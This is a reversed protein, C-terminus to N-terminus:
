IITLFFSHIHNIVMSMINKMASNYLLTSLVAEKEDLDLKSYILEKEDATYVKIPDEETGKALTKAKKGGAPKFAGEDDAMSQYSDLASFRQESLHEEKRAEYKDRTRRELKSQSGGGVGFESAKLFKYGKMDIATQAWNQEVRYAQPWKTLDESMKRKSATPKEVNKIKGDTVFTQLVNQDWHKTLDNLYRKASFGRQIKKFEKPTKQRKERSSPQEKNAEMKQKLLASEKELRQTSLFFNKIYSNENKQTDTHYGPPIGFNLVNKTFDNVTEMPQNDGGTAGTPDQSAQATKFNQSLVFSDDDFNTNSEEM